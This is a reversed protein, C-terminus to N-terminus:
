AAHMKAYHRRAKARNGCAAMDCWRRSGNRSEDLFLWLCEDNACRRVRRAPAALLLDAASWLIPALLEPMEQLPEAIQWGYTDGFRALQGRSPADRLARQLAAFDTAPAAQGEALAFFLRFLVERLAIARPFLAESEAPAPRAAFAGARALWTCLDPLGQLTEEPAAKGRWYRTNVFALSLAPRTAAILM